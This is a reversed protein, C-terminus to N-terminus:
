DLKEFQMYNMKNNYLLRLTDGSLHFNRVLLLLDVFKDGDYLEYIQNGVMNSFVIEKRELDMKYDGGISNSYSHGTFKDEKLDFKIWYVNNSNMQPLKEIDNAIDVFKTLHWKYNIIDYKSINDEELDDKCSTTAASIVTLLTIALVKILRRNKM